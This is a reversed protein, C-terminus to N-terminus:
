LDSCQKLKLGKTDPKYMIALIKNLDQSVTVKWVGGHMQNWTYFKSGSQFM